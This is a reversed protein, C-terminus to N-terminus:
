QRFGLSVQLGSEGEFVQIVDHAGVAIILRGLLQILGFPLEKLRDKFLFVPNGSGPRWPRVSMGENLIM